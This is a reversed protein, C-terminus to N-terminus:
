DEPQLGLILYKSGFDIGEFIIIQFMFLMAPLNGSYSRFFLSAHRLICISVSKSFFNDRDVETLLPHTYM